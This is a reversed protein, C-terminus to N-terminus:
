QAAGTDVLRLFRWVDAGSIVLMQDPNAMSVCATEVRRGDPLNEVTVSFGTSRGLDVTGTATEFMGSLKCGMM